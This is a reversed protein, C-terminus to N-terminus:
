NVEEIRDEVGTENMNSGYSRLNIGYAKSNITERSKFQPNKWAIWFGPRSVLKLHDQKLDEKYGNDGDMGCPPNTVVHDHSSSPKGKEGQYNIHCDGKKAGIHSKDERRTIRNDVAEGEYNNLLFYGYDAMDYFGDTVMAVSALWQARTDANPYYSKSSVTFIFVPHNPKYHGENVERFNSGFSESRRMDKKCCALSWLGGFYSPSSTGQTLANKNNNFTISDKNTSYVKGKFDQDHADCEFSEESSYRSKTNEMWLNLTNFGGNNILREETESTKERKEWQDYIIYPAEM